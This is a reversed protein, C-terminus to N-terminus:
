KKNWTPLPIEALSQAALQAQYLIREQEHNEDVIKSKRSSSENRTVDPGKVYDTRDFKDDYEDEEDYESREDEVAIGRSYLLTKVVSRVDEGLLLHAQVVERVEDISCGETAKSIKMLTSASITPFVASIYGTRAELSPYKVEMVRSFRGPRRFRMPIKEIHNTTATYIINDFQVQGDLLTLFKSEGLAQLAGDFEELVVMVLREPYLSRIEAVFQQIMDPHGTELLVIGDRAIVDQAIRNVLCSKGTGPSGWLLFSRKYVFGLNGYSARTEPLLFKTIEGTVLDFEKSPINVIRDSIISQPFILLDGKDTCRARYSGSPLRDMMQYNLPITRFVDGTYLIKSTTM